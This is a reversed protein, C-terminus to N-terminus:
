RRRLSDRKQPCFRFYVEDDGQIGFVDFYAYEIRVRIGFENTGAADAFRNLLMDAVMAGDSPAPSSAPIDHTRVWKQPDPSDVLSRTRKREGYVFQVTPNWGVNRAQSSGSNKFSVNIFPQAGVGGLDVFSLSASAVSVYARVQAQAIDAQRKTEDAGRKAEKASAQAALLTRWVLFVGLATIAAEFGGIFLMIYGWRALDTQSNLYRQYDSAKAPSENDTNATEFARAISHIDNKVPIPLSPPPNYPPQTQVNAPKQATGSGHNVAECHGNTSCGLALGVTACLSLWYSRSM